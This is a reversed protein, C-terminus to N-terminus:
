HVLSTALLSKVETIIRVNAPWTLMKISLAVKFVDRFM